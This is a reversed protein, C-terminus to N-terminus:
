TFLWTKHIPKLPITFYVFCRIVYATLGLVLIMYLIVLVNIM